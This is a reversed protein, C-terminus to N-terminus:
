KKARRQVKTKVKTKKRNEIVDRIAERIDGSGKGYKYYYQMEEEISNNIINKVQKDIHLMINESTCYNAVREKVMNEINDLHDVFAATINTKLCELEFRMIPLNEM